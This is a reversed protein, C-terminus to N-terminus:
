YYNYFVKLIWSFGWEYFVDIYKDFWPVLSGMEIAVNRKVYKNRDVLSQHLGYEILTVNFSESSLNM